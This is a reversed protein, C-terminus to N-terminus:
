ADADAVGRDATEQEVRMRPPDDSPARPLGHEVLFASVAARSPELRAPSSRLLLLSRGGDLLLRLDWSADKPDKSQWLPGSPVLTLGKIARAPIRSRRTLLSRWTVSLEDKETSLAISGGRRAFLLLAGFAAPVLVSGRIGGGVIAWAVIFAATAAVLLLGLIVRLASGSLPGFHVQPNSTDRPRARYPQM